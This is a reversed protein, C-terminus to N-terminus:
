VVGAKRRIAMVVRNRWGGNSSFAYAREYTMGAHLVYEVKDITAKTEETIYVTDAIKVGDIERALLEKTSINVPIYSSKAAGTSVNATGAKKMLRISTLKDGFDWAYWIGDVGDLIKSDVLEASLTDFRDKVELELKALVKLVADRATKEEEHQLRVHAKALIGVAVMDGEKFAAKMRALVEEKTLQDIPKHESETAM